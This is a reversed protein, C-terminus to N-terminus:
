RLSCSGTSAAVGCKVPSSNKADRLTVPIDVSPASRRFSFTVNSVWRKIRRDAWYEISDRDRIIWRLEALHSMWLDAAKRKLELAEALDSTTFSRLESGGLFLLTAEIREYSVAM